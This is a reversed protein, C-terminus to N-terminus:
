PRWRPIREDVCSLAEWALALTQEVYRYEVPGAECTHSNEIGRPTRTAMSTLLKSLPLLAVM